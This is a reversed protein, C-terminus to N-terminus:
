KGSSMFARRLRSTLGKSVPTDYKQSTLVSSDVGPCTFTSKWVCSRGAGPAPWTVTSMWTAASLKRSTSMAM